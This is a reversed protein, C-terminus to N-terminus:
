PLSALLRDLADYSEAMGDLMGSSLMEEGDEATMFMTTEIVLTHQADVDEFETTTVSVHGPTGDYEFTRSLRSPQEVERFRGEFGYDGEPAHEVFRWHGGPRVELTEITMEHGRAWWRSILDAQTFARWVADRPSDVVRETRVERNGPRTVEIETPM